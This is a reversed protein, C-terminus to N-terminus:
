QYDITFTMAANAPGGRVTAATQLYRAKLAISYSAGEVATPVIGSPLLTQLALPTGLNDAIQIGVGTAEPTGRNLKLVNPQTADVGATPDLRYKISNATGSGDSSSYVGNFAPCNNLALTFDTWATGTGVGNFEAVTHTGMPVNVNPTQCTRAVISLAGTISVNAIPFTAATMGGGVSAVYQAIPLSAGQVTGAAVTPATKILQLELTNAANLGGTGEHAGYIASNSYPAIGHDGKILVGLGSVGTEYVKGAMEGTAWLSLAPTNSYSISRDYKVYSPGGTAYCQIFNNIAMKQRYVVAGVPVDRGITISQARLAMVPTVLANRVYCTGAAHVTMTSGGLAIGVAIVRLARNTNM